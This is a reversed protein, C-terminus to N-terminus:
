CFGAFSANGKDPMLAEPEVPLERPSIEWRLAMDPSLCAVAVGFVKDCIMGANMEMNPGFTRGGFDYNTGCAFAGTGLRSVYQKVMPAGGREYPCSCVCADGKRPFRDFDVLLMDGDHIDSGEMCTGSVTIGAIKDETPADALIGAPIAIPRFEDLYLPKQYTM